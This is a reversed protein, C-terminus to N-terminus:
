IAAYLWWIDSIKHVVTSPLFIGKTHLLYFFIAVKQLHSQKQKYEYNAVTKRIFIKMKFYITYVRKECILYVQM